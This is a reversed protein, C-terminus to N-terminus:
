VLLFELQKRLLGAVKWPDLEWHKPSFLECSWWGDYGTSLVADVWEKLPIHGGGSWVHRLDHSITEMDAPVALSDCYHVGYILNKDVKAVDEPKVGSTWMHWFDVVLGVNDKGTVDILELTQELTHLPAWSLPELCFGVNHKRGVDALAKLNRTTLDRTEKWPKDILGMYGDFDGLGPGIPGTLIQVTDCDLHEAVSCMKECEELLADYEEPEQREIDPVFGLAGVPFGALRELVSEITHGEDLYRYLKSGVIEIGKYGTVVAIRIDTALNCHMTCTGNHAIM